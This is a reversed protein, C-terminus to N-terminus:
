TFARALAVRQQQGGSLEKPYRHLLDDIGLQKLLYGGYDDLVAHGQKIKLGLMVNQYM